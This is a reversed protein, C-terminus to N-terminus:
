SAALANTATLDSSSCANSTMSPNLTSGSEADERNICVNSQKRVNARVGVM